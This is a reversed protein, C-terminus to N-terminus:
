SDCLVSHEQHLLIVVQNCWPASSDQTASYTYRPSMSALARPLKSSDRPMWLLVSRRGFVTGVCRLLCILKPRQVTSLKIVLLISIIFSSAQVSAVYFLLHILFIKFRYGPSFFHDGLQGELWIIATVRALTWKHTHFLGTTWPHLSLSLFNGLPLVRSLSLEALIWTLLVLGAEEFSILMTSLPM